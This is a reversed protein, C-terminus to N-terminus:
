FPENTKTKLTKSLKMFLHSHKQLPAHIPVDPQDAQDPLIIRKDVFINVEEQGFQKDCLLSNQIAETALDKTALCQLTGPSGSSFVKCQQFVLLLSAEDANDRNQRSQNAKNHFRVSGPGQNFM